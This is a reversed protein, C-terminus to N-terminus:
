GDSTRPSSRPAAASSDPPQRGPRVPQQAQPHLAGLEPLVPRRAIMGRPVPQVRGPNPTRHGPEETQSLARKM